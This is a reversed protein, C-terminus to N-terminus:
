SASGAKHKRWLYSAFSACAGFMFVAEDMGVNAQDASLHAHRIGQEDSTYGYLKSFASKLAPHLAGQAELSKLAPALTAARPNLQRAVSEVAHISERISGAWDGRNICEASKRLHSTSGQLGAHALTQLSAAVAEGEETTVAPFITAPPGPDIAYALRCNRFVIRMSEVFDKPCESDRMIFQILDFVKNFKETEIRHRMYKCVSEFQPKWDDAPNNDQVSHVRLLISSWPDTIYLDITSYSTFGDYKKRKKSAELWVYLVNWIQIRAEKPLEGLKLPEPLKEYGQAQSFSLERPDGGIGHLPVMPGSTLPRGTNAAVEEARRRAVHAARRLAAEAGQFNSGGSGKREGDTSKM